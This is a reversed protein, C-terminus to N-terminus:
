TQLLEKQTELVPENKLETPNPSKAIQEVQATSDM